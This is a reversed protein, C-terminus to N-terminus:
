TQTHNFDCVDWVPFDQEFRAFGRTMTFAVPLLAFRAKGRLRTMGAAALGGHFLGITIPISRSRIATAKAAGMRREAHCASVGRSVLRRGNMTSGNWSGVFHM